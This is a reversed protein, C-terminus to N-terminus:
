ALRWIRATNDYNGTVLYADDPSWSLSYVVGSTYATRVKGTQADLLSIKGDGGYTAITRDNHSWAIEGMPAGGPAPYTYLTTGHNSLWVRATQDSSTSALRTSDSAWSLSNIRDSHGQPLRQEVM